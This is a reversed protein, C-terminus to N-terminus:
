LYKTIHNPPSYIHMSVSIDDYDNNITHFGINNDMFSINNEELINTKLIDLNKCYITEKLKGKLLKLFCGYLAHDHIKTYQRTNWTIIYIEYNLNEYIKTKNYNKENVNIYKKWDDSNYKILIEKVDEFKKINQLNYIFEKLNM